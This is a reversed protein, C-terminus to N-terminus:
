GTARAPEGFHLDLLQTLAPLNGHQARVEDIWREALAGAGVGVLM